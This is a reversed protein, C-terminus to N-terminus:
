DAGEPMRVTMRNDPVDIGLVVDKVAPILLDQAGNPRAVVYVDNGGTSIIEKVDGLYAGADDWVEMDIVQYHYYAGAPPPGVEGEPVTILCGRLAEADTRDDVADLKVVLGDKVTRRRQVRTTRDDLTLVSGPSFRESFDTLVEVKLDGRLGWAGRIRGVVVGEDPRPKARKSPHSTKM